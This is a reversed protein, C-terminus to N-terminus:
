LRRGIYSLNRDLFCSKFSWIRHIWIFKFKQHFTDELSAAESSTMVRPASQRWSCKVELASRKVHKLSGKQQNRQERKNM